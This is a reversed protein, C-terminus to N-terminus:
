TAGPPLPAPPPSEPLSSPPRPRWGPDVSYVFRLNQLELWLGGEPVVTAPDARWRARTERCIEAEEPVSQPNSSAAASIAHCEAVLGDTGIRLRVILGTASRYGPNAALLPGLDPLQWRVNRTVTGVISRGRHDRAPTYRARESLAACAAQDLIAYGSSMTIACEAVRGDRGITMRTGTTGYLGAEWAAEPYDDTTVWTSPDGIPTAPRDLTAPAELRILASPPAPPQVAQASSQLLFAIVWASM